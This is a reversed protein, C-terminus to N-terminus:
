RSCGITEVELSKKEKAWFLGCGRERFDIPFITLWSCGDKLSMLGSMLMLLFSVGKEDFCTVVCYYVLTLPM